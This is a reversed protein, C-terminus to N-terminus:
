FASCRPESFREERKAPACDGEPGRSDTDPRADPLFYLMISPM